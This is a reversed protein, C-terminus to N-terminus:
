KLQGGKDKIPAVNNIQTKNWKNVFVCGPNDIKTESEKEEKKVVNKLLEKLKQRKLTSLTPVWFINFMADPYGYMKFISTKKDNPDKEFFSCYRACAGKIGTYNSRLKILKELNKGM